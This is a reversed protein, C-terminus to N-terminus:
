DEGRGTEVPRSSQVGSNTNEIIQRKSTITGSKLAKIAEERSGGKKRVFAEFKKEVTATDAGFARPKRMFFEFAEDVTFGISKLFTIHEICKYIYTDRSCATHKDRRLLQYLGEFQESMIGYQELIEALKNNAEQEARAKKVNRNQRKNETSNGRFNGKMVQEFKERETLDLSPVVVEEIYRRLTGKNLNIDVDSAVKRLSEGAMLRSYAEWIKSDEIKRKQM